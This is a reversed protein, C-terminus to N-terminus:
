PMAIVMGQIEGEPTAFTLEVSEQSHLDRLLKYFSDIDTVPRGDVEVIISGTPLRKGWPLRTDVVEVLVGQRYAVALDASRKPTNTALQQLGRRMLQGRWWMRLSDYRDLAFVLDLSENSSRDPDYRRITVRLPDGPAKTQVLARIQRRRDVPQGEVHTIIDGPRIGAKEAPGDRVVASIFVGKGRFAIASANQPSAMTVGMYGREPARGEILQEVVSEIMSMPIALGISAFQGDDFSSRREGTAIATNMGIVRGRANTLPGGSNGPNIAADVQIFNEYGMWRGRDGRIIGVSRGMGSVVGSSLSFRFDFPSGFAFVIDGQRVPDDPDGLVAPHLQGPPIKIVAVDTFQDAGVLQAERLRGDYLQVQIRDAGRIVHENTVIYGQDSYIWGSGASRDVRDNGSRDRVLRETSIHVVSPEVLAAIDRYAQNLQRLVSANELRDSAQIIRAQTQAYTLRRIAAPGALLVVLATGLVILSPGYRNLRSM